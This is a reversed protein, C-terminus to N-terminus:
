PNIDIVSIKGSIQTAAAAGDIGLLKQLLDSLAVQIYLM